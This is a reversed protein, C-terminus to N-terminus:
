LLLLLLEWSGTSPEVDAIIGLLRSIDSAKPLGASASEVGNLSKSIPQVNM